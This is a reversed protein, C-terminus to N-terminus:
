SVDLTLVGLILGCVSVKFFCGRGRNDREL